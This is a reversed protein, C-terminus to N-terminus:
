LGEAHQVECISVTYEGEMDPKLAPLYVKLYQESGEWARIADISDWLSIAYIADPEKADRALWRAKMGPVGRGLAKYKAQHQEFVGPRLKVWTM